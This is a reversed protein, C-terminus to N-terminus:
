AGSDDTNVKPPFMEVQKAAQADFEVTFAPGVDMSHPLGDIRQEACQDKCHKWGCPQFVLGHLRLAKEVLKVGDGDVRAVLAGACKPAVSFGKELAIETSLLALAEKAATIEHPDPTEIDKCFSLVIDACYTGWFHHYLRGHAKM